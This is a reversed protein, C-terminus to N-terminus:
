FRPEPALKEYYSSRGTELIERIVNQTTRGVGKIKSLEGTMATLPEKLKSISYAAYGYPSKQGQLKLFYDIHELIVVVLDNKGLIDRYLHLPIRVPIRYKRAFITFVQHLSDYYEGSAGGWRDGRYIQAYTGVIQPYHEKLVKMFFDEQRGEKLTMGGFIVYDAGIERAKAFAGAILPPTDTVFPIVPLLFMGCAIGERKLLALTALRKEPSPVGPEFLSSIKEDMSSFSFSVLVRSKENIKKLLDIDREVLTSKTLIHVPFGYEYILELTKRSLRYKKELPQYNDGVGGVLGIFGPIFPKRKRKPDLERRLIDVANVKVAVDEGFEGAVYYGETRGDCYVCNHTCGRYLNMGYRTIFWSDIKKHKRLISKAQIENIAM